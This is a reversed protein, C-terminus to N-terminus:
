RRDEEEREERLEREEDIIEEEVRWRLGQREEEEERMMGHLVRM